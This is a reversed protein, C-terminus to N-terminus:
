RLSQEPDFDVRLVSADRPDEPGVKVRAVELSEADFWYVISGSTLQFAWDFREFFSNSLRSSSGDPRTIFVELFVMGNQFHFVSNETASNVIVGDSPIELELGDSYARGKTTGLGIDNNFSGTVRGSCKSRLDELSFGYNRFESAEQATCFYAIAGLNLADQNLDDSADAVEKVDVLIVFRDFEFPQSTKIVEYLVNLQLGLAESQNSLIEAQKALSATEANLLEAQGTFVKEMEKIRLEAAQQKQQHTMTLSVAAIVSSLVVGAVAAIGLASFGPESSKRHEAYLALIAFVGAVFIAIYNVILLM